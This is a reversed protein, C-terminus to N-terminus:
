GACGSRRQSILPTNEHRGDSHHDLRYGAGAVHAAPVAEIGIFHAATALADIGGHLVVHQLGEDAPHHHVGVTLGGEGELAALGRQRANFIEAAQHLQLLGVGARAQRHGVGQLGVAQVQRVLHDGEEGLVVEEQAHGQVATLRGVIEQAQVCAAAAGEVSHQGGRFLQISGTHAVVDEAHHILGHCVVDMLHQLGEPGELEQLEDGAQIGQVSFLGLM